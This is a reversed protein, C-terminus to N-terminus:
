QWHTYIAWVSTFDFHNCLRVHIQKLPLLWTRIIYIMIFTLRTANITLSFRWNIDRGSFLHFSSETLTHTHTHTAYSDSLLCYWHHRILFPWKRKQWVSLNGRCVTLYSFNLTEGLTDQFIHWALKRQTKKAYKKMLSSFSSVTNNTLDRFGSIHEAAKM